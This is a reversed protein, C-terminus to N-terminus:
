RRFVKRFADGISGAVSNNPRPSNAMEPLGPMLANHGTVDIFRGYAGGGAAGIDGLTHVGAAGVLARIPISTQPIAAVAAGIVYPGVFEGMKESVGASRGPEPPHLISTEPSEWPRTSLQMRTIEATRAREWDELRLRHTSAELTFREAEAHRTAADLWNTSDIRTGLELQHVHERIDRNLHIDQLLVMGSEPDIQLNLDAGRPPERFLKRFADGITAAVSTHPRPSDVMEPLGPMLVNHGTVDIFRGYAGGGAAGIDGLTHVGAAGVLARIPISTQPIAAVAAGIVYPGVFEGMKESVGASRGPEPPHLISTEPSEWPRTSLQMRTIEATRAREWDELRLRHTSAELTFREAEAHRTADDLWNTSDIRTGLELQHVHERIDRNLHIDQLLVMGSEPDIELNLDAGHASSCTIITVAIATACISVKYSQRSSPAYGMTRNSM